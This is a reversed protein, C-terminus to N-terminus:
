ITTSALAFTNNSALSTHKGHVNVDNNRTMENQLTQAGNESTPLSADLLIVQNEPLSETKLSIERKLKNNDNNNIQPSM